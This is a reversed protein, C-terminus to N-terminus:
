AQRRFDSGAAVLESLAREIRPVFGTKNVVFWSRAAGGLADWQAPPMALLRAVASEMAAEDFQSLTALNHREGVHAALLVGREATILENMPAADCTITVAGVSMAEVIYHGWGEAESTCLHFRHTNQLTRLAEDSLFGHQYVINAPAAAAMTAEADQVVTLQPWEPHRQWLSLLRATGKLPSRGALHLFIPERTIANQHRDCSDFGIYVARSGRETFLREALATKAWVRHAAGLFAVDRRDFWEPNPVLVNCNAEHLFQPWVHELMLNVDYRAGVRVGSNGARLVRAHAALRTLLGRRRKRDRRECGHLTVECGCARLASALLEFDRSLGVGNAKGILRVQLRPEATTTSLMPSAMPQLPEKPAEVGSKSFYRM